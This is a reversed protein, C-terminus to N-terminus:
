PGTDMASIRWAGGAARDLTVFRVNLGDNWLALRSQVRLTVRLVTKTQSSAGFSQASVLRVSRLTAGMAQATGFTPDLCFGAEVYRRAGLLSIFARVAGPATVSARRVRALGRVRQHAAWVQWRPAGAAALAEAQEPDVYDDQYVLWGGPSGALLTLVHDALLTQQTGDAATIRSSCRCVVEARTLADGASVLSATVPEAGQFFAVPGLSVQTLAGVYLAGRRAAVLTRGTAVLPEVAAAPSGPQLWAALVGPRAGALVAQDRAALYTRVAGTVAEVPALKTPEATAVPSAPLPSAVGQAVGSKGCATLPVTLALAATLWM